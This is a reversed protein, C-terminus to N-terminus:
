DPLRRLGIEGKSKKGTGVKSIPHEEGLSDVVRLKFSKDKIDDPNIDKAMFRVWGAVPQAPSLCFPLASFMQKIPEKTDWKELRLGYEYKKNNFDVARLDDQRAFNVTAGKVEASLKLDRVYKSETKSTNVLYLDILVDCDIKADQPRGQVQYIGKVMEWSMTRPSLAIRYVEGEIVPPDLQTLAPAPAMEVRSPGTFTSAACDICLRASVAALNEIYGTNNQFDRNLGHM